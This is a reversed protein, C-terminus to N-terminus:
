RRREKRYMEYITSASPLGKPIHKKLYKPPVGTSMSCLVAYLCEKDDLSLKANAILQQYVAAAAEIIRIEKEPHADRAFGDVWGDLTMLYAESLVDQLRAIRQLQDPTLADHKREGKTQLKRTRGKKDTVIITRKEVGDSIPRKNESM